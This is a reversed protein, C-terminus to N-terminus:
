PAAPGENGKSPALDKPPRSEFGVDPSVPGAADEGPLGLREALLKKSERVKENLVAIQRKAEEASNPIPNLNKDVLGDPPPLEQRDFTEFISSIASAAQPNKLARLDMSVNAGSQHVIKTPHAGSLDIESQSKLWIACAALVVAFAFALFYFSLEARSFAALILSVIVVAALAVLFIQSGTPKLAVSAKLDANARTQVM